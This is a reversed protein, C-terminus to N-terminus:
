MADALDLRQRIAAEMAARHPEYHPHITQAM